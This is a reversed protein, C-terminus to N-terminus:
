PIVFEEKKETLVVVGFGLADDAAKLAFLQNKGGGVLQFLKHAIRSEDIYVIAGGNNGDL